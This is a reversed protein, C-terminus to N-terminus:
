SDGESAGRKTPPETKELESERLALMRDAQGPQPVAVFVTLRSIHVVKGVEGSETRVWDGPQLDM